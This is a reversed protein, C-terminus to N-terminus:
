IEKANLRETLELVMAHLEQISKVLYPILFETNYTKVTNEGNLYQKVNEEVKREIIQSPIVNEINQAIFGHHTITTDMKYKFTVPELKTVVDLANHLPTIDQKVREDSYNPNWSSGGWGIFVGFTNQNYVYFESSGVGINWQYSANQFRINPGGTGAIALHLLGQPNDTGIGFSGNPKITVVNARHATDYPWISFDSNTNYRCGFNWIPNTSSITGFPVTQFMASRDSGSSNSAIVTWSSPNIVYMDGQVHLKELPQTTGIGVNGNALVSVREVGATVLGLMDTGPRYMGTNTDGTWSFSPTTVLDTALGLFQTGADISGSSLINGQVHLKQTPNTTGIGVNGGSVIRLRELGATGLVINQVMDAVTSYGSLDIYSKASLSSGGGASLRIFGDDATAGSGSMGRIENTITTNSVAPRVGANTLTGSLGISGQQIHLKHLPNTVGIGVNGNGVLSMVTNNPITAYNNAANPYSAVKIDLVSLGVISAANAGLEFGASVSSQVGSTGNRVVRFIADRSVDVGSAGVNVGHLDLKTTPAAIGIGLRSNVNDWHLNTPQLVATTGNGV